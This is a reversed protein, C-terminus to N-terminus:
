AGRGTKKRGGPRIRRRSTPERRAVVAGTCAYRIADDVDAGCAEAALACFAAVDERTALPGLASWRALLPACRPRCAAAFRVLCGARSLVDRWAAEAATFGARWGDAAPPTM